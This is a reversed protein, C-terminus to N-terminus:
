TETWWDLEARAESDEPNAEAAAEDKKEFQEPREAQLSPDPPKVALLADNTLAENEMLELLDAANLQLIEIRQILQPSLQLRLEPRQSLILEPRM